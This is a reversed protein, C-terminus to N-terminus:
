KKCSYHADSKETPIFVNDFDVDIEQGRKLLGLQLTTNQLLFNPKIAPAHAYFGGEQSRYSISMSRLEKLGPAITDSSPIKAGSATILHKKLHTAIDEIHDGDCLYICFLSLLIDSYQCGNNACRNGLCHGALKDLGVHM